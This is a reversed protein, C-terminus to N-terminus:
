IYERDVQQFEWRCLSPRAMNRSIRSKPNWYASNLWPVDAQQRSDKLCNIGPFDFNGAHM